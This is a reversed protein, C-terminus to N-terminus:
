SWATRLPQSNCLREGAMRGVGGREPFGKAEVDLAEGTRSVGLRPDVVREVIGLTRQGFEGIPTWGFIPRIPSICRPSIQNAAVGPPSRGTSTRM